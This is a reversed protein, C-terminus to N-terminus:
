EDFEIKSGCKPCYGPDLLSSSMNRLVKRCKPCRCAHTYLTLGAIISAIGAIWLPTIHMLFGIFFVGAGIAIITESIKLQKRSM